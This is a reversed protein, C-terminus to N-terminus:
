CLLFHSVLQNISGHCQTNSSPWFSHFWKDSRHPYLFPWLTNTWPGYLSLAQATALSLHEPLLVSCLVPSPRREFEVEWSPRATEGDFDLDQEKVLWVMQVSSDIQGRGTDWSTQDHKDNTFQWLRLQSVRLTRTDWHQIGGRDGIAFVLFKRYFGGRLATGNEWGKAAGCTFDPDLPHHARTSLRRRMSSPFEQSFYKVHSLEFSLTKLQLQSLPGATDRPASRPLSSASRIGSSGQVAQTNNISICQHKNRQSQHPRHKSSVRLGLFLPRSHLNVELGAKGQSNNSTMIAKPGHIWYINLCIHKHESCRREWQNPNLPIM